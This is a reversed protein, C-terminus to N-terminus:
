FAMLAGRALVSPERGSKLLLEQLGLHLPQPRGIAYGQAYDVGLASVQDRLTESHVYEATTEMGLRKALTVITSIMAAAKPQHLGDRIFAGDIKLM